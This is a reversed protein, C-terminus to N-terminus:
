THDRTAINKTKCFKCISKIPLMHKQQTQNTLGAKNMAVFVHGRDTYRFAVKADVQRRERMKKREDKLQKEEKQVLM